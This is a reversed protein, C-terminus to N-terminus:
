DRLGLVKELEIVRRVLRRVMEEPKVYEGGIIYTRTIELPNKAERGCDIEDRDFRAVIRDIEHTTPPKM